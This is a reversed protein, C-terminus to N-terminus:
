SEEATKLSRRNTRATLERYDHYEVYAETFRRSLGIVLGWLATLHERRPEITIDNDLIRLAEGFYDRSPHTTKGNVIHQGITHRSRAVHMNRM